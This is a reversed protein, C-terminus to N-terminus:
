FGGMLILIADEIAKLREEQSPEPAKEPEAPTEEVDILTKEGTAPNFLIQKAM